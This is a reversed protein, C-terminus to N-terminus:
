EDAGEDLDHVDSPDPAGDVVEPVWGAPPETFELDAADKEGAM